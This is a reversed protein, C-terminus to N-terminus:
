FTPRHGVHHGGLRIYTAGEAFTGYNWEKYWAVFNPQRGSSSHRATVSGIYSFVLSSHLTIKAAPLIWNPPLLGLIYIYKTYWGLLSGFMRWLKTSRLQAVDTCYPLWFVFGTSNYPPGFSALPDWSNIPWLEGYQSSMQLLYQQKVLRKGITSAHRLYLSIALCIQAITGLHLNKADQM